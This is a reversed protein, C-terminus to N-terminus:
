FFSGWTSIRPTGPVIWRNSYRYGFPINQAGPVIWRAHEIRLHLYAAQTFCKMKNCHLFLSAMPILHRAQVFKNQQSYSYRNGLPFNTVSNHRSCNMYSENFCSGWTSYTTSAQHLEDQLFIIRLRFIHHAQFLEHIVWQFDIGLHFVRHKGPVIWRTSFCDELPFHPAQRSGPVIRRSVTEFAKLLIIIFFSGWTTSHPTGPVIWAHNMSFHYGFPINKHRFYNM